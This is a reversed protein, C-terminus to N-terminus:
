PCARSAEAILIALLLAAMIIAIVFARLMRDSARKSQDLLASLAAIEVRLDAETM